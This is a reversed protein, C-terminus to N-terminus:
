AQRVRVRAVRLDEPLVLVGRRLAGPVEADRSDGRIGGLQLLELRDLELM